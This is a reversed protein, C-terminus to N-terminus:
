REEPRRCPFASPTSAWTRRCTHPAAEVTMSASARGAPFSSGHRRWTAHRKTDGDVATRNGGGVQEVIRRISGVVASRVGAVCRLVECDIAQRELSRDSYLDWESRCGRRFGAPSWASPRTSSPVLMVTNPLPMLNGLPSSVRRFVVGELRCWAESTSCNRWWCFWRSWGTGLLKWHLGDLMSPMPM